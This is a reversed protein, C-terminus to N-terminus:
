VRWINTKVRAIIDDAGTIRLTNNGPKLVPFDGSYANTWQAASATKNEADIKATDIAGTTRSSIDFTMTKGGCEVRLTDSAANKAYQIELIPEAQFYTPNNIAAGQSSMKRVGDIYVSGSNTTSATVMKIIVYRSSTNSNTWTYEKSSGSTTITPSVSSFTGPSGTSTVTAARFTCSGIVSSPASFKVTQGADIIMSYHNTYKSDAYTSTYHPYNVFTGADKDYRQPKCNFVLEFNASDNNRPTHVDAEFPGRFEAMRYEGPHYSDELKHYGPASLLFNRLESARDAFDETISCPYVVEVNLFGGNDYLLDGNRGPVHIQEIDREAAGYTGRGLMTMGFTTELDVGNYIVSM